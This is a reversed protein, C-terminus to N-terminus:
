RKLASAKVFREQIDEDLLEFAAGGGGAGGRGMATGFPSLLLLSM